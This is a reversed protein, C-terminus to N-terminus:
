AGGSIAINDILRTQGLRAAVMLRAPRDPFSLTELTEADVLSLYDVSSFGRSLLLNTAETLTETVTKGAEISRKANYLAQPLTSATDREKASLYANRSSLALGDDDRMTPVGEIKVPMDLDEAMRRIIMLQQWDKEGFLAVDPQIINFLKCVVTTVGDFHGPRHAGELVDGLSAVSITTRFGSPYIATASPAFLLDCGANALLEIDATEQRPYRELDENAGFQKPNVFISTVIRHGAERARALLSMHGAHLAGMTPVLAIPAGSARLAAVAARTAEIERVIEM